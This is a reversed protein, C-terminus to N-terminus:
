TNVVVPRLRLGDRLLLRLLVLVIAALILVVAAFVLWLLPVSVPQGFVVGNFRIRASAVLGLLVLVLSVQATM